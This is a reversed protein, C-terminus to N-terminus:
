RGEAEEPLAGGRRAARVQVAAEGEELAFLWLQRSEAETPMEGGRNAAWVQLAKGYAKLAARRRADDDGRPQHADLPREGM